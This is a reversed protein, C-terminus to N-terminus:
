SVTELLKLAIPTFVYAGDDGWTGEGQEKTLLGLSVLGTAREGDYTLKSINICGETPNEHFVIKSGQCEILFSLEEVTIDRLARSVLSAEHLNLRDHASSKRIGQKLYEIKNDDPSNLITIVSENIFKFQADSLENLSEGLSALEDQISNLAAEVRKKHRGNALTSTLIPLLAAIPSGVVASVIATAGTVPLSGAVKELGTEKNM